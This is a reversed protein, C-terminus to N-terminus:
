SIRNVSECFVEALGTATPSIATIFIFSIKKSHNKFRSAHKAPLAFAKIRENIMVMRQAPILGSNPNELIRCGMIMMLIVM